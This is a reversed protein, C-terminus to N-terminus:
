WKQFCDSEILKQGLRGTYGQGLMCLICWEQPGHKALPGGTNMKMKVLLATSAIHPLTDNKLAIWLQGEGKTWGQGKPSPPGSAPKGSVCGDGHHNKQVTEATNSHEYKECASSHSV